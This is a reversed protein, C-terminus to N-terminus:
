GSAWDLQWALRSRRTILVLGTVVAAACCIAILQQLRFQRKTM